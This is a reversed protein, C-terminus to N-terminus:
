YIYDAKKNNNEQNEPMTHKLLELQILKDIDKRNQVCLKEIQNYSLESNSVDILLDKVKNIVIPDNSEIAQKGDRFKKSKSHDIWLKRGQGLDLQMNHEFKNLIGSLVKSVLEYHSDTLELRDEIIFGAVRLKELYKLAIEFAQIQTSITDGILEHIKIIICKSYIIIMENDYHLNYVINNKSLEYSDVKIAQMANIKDKTITGDSIFTKFEIKHQSLDSESRWGGRHNEGMTELWLKGKETVEITYNWEDHYIIKHEILRKLTDQFSAKPVGLNLYLRRKNNLTIRNNDSNLIYLVIAKAHKGYSIIPHPHRNKSKAWRPIATEAVNTEQPFKQM